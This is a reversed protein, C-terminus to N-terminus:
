EVVYQKHHVIGNVEEKTHKIGAIIAIDSKLKPIDAGDKDYKARLEGAYYQYNGTNNMTNTFDSDSRGVTLGKDDITVLSTVVKPVGNDKLDTIAKNIDFTFSEKTETFKTSVEEKTAYDKEMITKVEGVQAIIADDIVDHEAFKKLTIQYQKNANAKTEYEDVIPVDRYYTLVSPADAEINTVGKRTRISELAEITTEDTIETVIPKALQYDLKFVLDPYQEKWETETLNFSSKFLFIAGTTKTNIGVTRKPNSTMNSRCGTGLIGYLSNNEGPYDEKLQTQNAWGPYDESNNMDAIALELHRVWQEDYWKGTEDDRYIRDRAGNPLSRMPHLLPIATITEKYPEYDSETSSLRVMVESTDTFRGTANYSTIMGNTAILNNYITETTTFTLTFLGDKNTTAGLGTAGGSLSSNPYVYFRMNDTRASKFTFTYEKNLEIGIIDIYFFNNNGQSTNIPNGLSLTSQKSLNKGISKYGLHNHPVPFTAQTGKEFQIDYYQTQEGVSVPTGGNNYIFFRYHKYGTLNRSYYYEQNLIPSSSQLTSIIDYTEGDNSGYINVRIVSDGDTGAVTKKGKFSFTYTKSPDLNSIYKKVYQAGVTGTATLTLIENTIECDFHGNVREFDALEFENKGSVSEIESPFDPSPKQGYQEWEPVETGLAVQPKFLLNDITVGANVGLSLIKNNTNYYMYATTSGTVPVAYTGNTGTGAGSITAGYEANTQLSFYANATATGNVTITGDGNDTFTIGNTTKTTDAFPYPLVNTGKRTEQTSEGFIEVSKCNNDASDILHFEKSEETTATITQNNIATDATQQALYAVTDDTYKTAKKWDSEAYVGSSDKAVICEYLEEDKLWLDGVNYPVIPQVTFVKAKSAALAQVASLENDTLEVWIWTDDVKDFRYSKGQKMEGDIDEIVTYIDARHNNKDAETEWSLAPENNLTPITPGNWFQIQGDIQAQLNSVETDVKGELDTVNQNTEELAGDLEEISTETSEVRTTVGELSKEVSVIKESQETSEQILETIKLKEQDIQSQVRRNIVKQSPTRTTTEEQLKSQIKSSISAKFKGGYQSAGQYIINKGDIILIDGVDLAPDIITDGEFSYVELENLQTYINDIQEQDVIYMNEQSLYVTNYTTDGKEFLQVGDDYRVRSIKFKDGWSFKQLYKISLEVTSEGIAKIYLKGDRGICAFGGAQESIYSLYTRASITNDYVAIQKNQNM